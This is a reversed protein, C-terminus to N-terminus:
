KEESGKFTVKFRKLANYEYPVSSMYYYNCDLISLLALKDTEAGIDDCNLLAYNISDLVAEAVSEGLYDYLCESFENIKM